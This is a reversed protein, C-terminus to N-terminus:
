RKPLNLSPLGNQGTKLKYKIIFNLTYYIDNSRSYKSTYGDVYDSFAYRGGLELGLNIYKSFNVNLGIGVPIVATFGKTKIAMAALLDNPHVLYSLGGFGTFAYFDLMSFITMDGNEKGKLLLLSNEGQNKIFYYEGMVSPEFFITRSELGRDINSGRKDDSHFYGLDFNLRVSVDDLIRYQLSTCLNFRTHSFSIDKLGVLNKGKSVGGLDGFFQTTGIGATVEYRRYKWLQANTMSSLALIAVITILFKRM